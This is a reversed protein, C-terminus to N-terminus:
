DRQAAELAARFEKNNPNLEVAREFQTVALEKEGKLEYVQGLRWHAMAHTPQDPKPESELYVKLLEEARDLEQEELLYTTAIHYMANMDDPNEALIVEFVGRADALRANRHYFYGLAYKAQLTSTTDLGVAEMLRDEAM